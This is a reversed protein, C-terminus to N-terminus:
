KAQASARATSVKWSESHEVIAKADKSTFAKLQTDVSWGTPTQKVEFVRYAAQRGAVVSSASNTSFIRTQGCLSSSNKHNHGHLILDVRHKALLVELDAADDLAKRRSIMGPLPPHHILLCCFNQPDVEGLRQDLRALQNEGLRGTASFVVTPLASSTAILNCRGLDHQVPYFSRNDSGPDSRDLDPIHLYPGWADSVAAWSDRHYVDHNGPIVLIKDPAGLSELWSRIQKVESTLGIHALDGTILIFDPQEAHVADVVRSLMAPQHQERRKRRWSLYGSWRKGSLQAFSTGELTSLHPDTLHILRM